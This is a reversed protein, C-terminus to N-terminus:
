ELNIALAHEPVSKSYRRGVSTRQQREVEIALHVVEELAVFPRLEVELRIERNMGHLFRSITAEKDERIDARMMLLELERFYEDVSKSGQRLQQLAEHLDRQYYGVVFREHLLGRLETWVTIEPQLNRRRRLQTQEWWQTAYDTFEYTALLVKQIESYDGCQFFLMVKREWDLYASANNTGSFSPVQLKIGRLNTLNNGKGVDPPRFEFNGQIQQHEPM